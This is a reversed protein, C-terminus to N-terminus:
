PRIRFWSLAQDRTAIGKYSQWIERPNSHGLIYSAKGAEGDLACKYTAFSHRLANKPPTIGAAKYAKSLYRQYQRKSLKWPKGQMRDLWAWLVAPCNEILHRRGTKFKNAPILITRSEFSVEDGTLRIANSTRMGAFAQCAVRAAFETSIRAAEKMLAKGQEVSLIGIEENIIKPSTIRGTPDVNIYHEAHCWRFFAKLYALKNRRTVPRIKLTDLFERCHGTQTEALMIGPFAPAFQDSLTQKLHDYYEPSATGEKARLFAQVADALTMDAGTLKDEYERVLAEPTIGMKQCAAKVMLWRDWEMVSFSEVDPVLRSERIWVDRDTQTRFFKRKQKGDKQYTVGYPSSKRDPRHFKKM